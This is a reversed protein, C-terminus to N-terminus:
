SNGFHEVTKARVAFAPTDESGYEVINSHEATWHVGVGSRGHRRVKIGDRYDGSDVPSISRAYDAVENALELKGQLVEPSNELYDEVAERGVLDYLSAM